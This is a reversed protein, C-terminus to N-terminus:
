RTQLHCPSSCSGHSRRKYESPTLRLPCPPRTGGHGRRKVEESYVRGSVDLATELLAGQDGDQSCGKRTEQFTKRYIGVRLAM